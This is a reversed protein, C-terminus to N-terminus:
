RGQSTALCRLLLCFPLRNEKNLSILKPIPLEPLDASPTRHSPPQSNTLSCYHHPFTWLVLLSPTAELPDRPGTLLPAQNAMTPSSPPRSCSYEVLYAEINRTQLHPFQPVNLNLVKGLTCKSLSPATKTGLCSELVKGLRGM